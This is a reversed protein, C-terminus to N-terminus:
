RIPMYGYNADNVTDYAVSRVGNASFRFDTTVESAVLRNIPQKYRYKFEIGEGRQKRTTVIENERRYFWERTERPICFAEGISERLKRASYNLQDVM